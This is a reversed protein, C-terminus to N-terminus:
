GGADGSSLSSASPCSNNQGRGQGSRDQVKIFPHGPPLAPYDHGYDLLSQLEKVNPLRWDNFRGLEFM